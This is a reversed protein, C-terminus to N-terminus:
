TSDVHTLQFDVHQCALQVEGSLCTFNGIGGGSKGSELFGSLGPLCQFGWQNTLLLGVQRGVHQSGALEHRNFM